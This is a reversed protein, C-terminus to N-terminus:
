DSGLLHRWPVGVALRRVRRVLGMGDYRTSGGACEALGVM